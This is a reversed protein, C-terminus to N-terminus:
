IVQKEMCFRKCEKMQFSYFGNLGMCFIVADSCNSVIHECCLGKGYCEWKVLFRFCLAVFTNGFAEYMLFRSFTHSFPGNKVSEWTFFSGVLLLFAATSQHFLQQAKARFSSHKPQWRATGKGGADPAKMKNM